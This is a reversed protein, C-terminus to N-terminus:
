VASPEISQAGLRGILANQQQQIQHQLQKLRQEVLMAADQNRALQNRVTPAQLLQQLVQLRLAYNQNPRVDEGIGVMIRGLVAKEEDVEQMSAAQAPRLLREALSPDIIEAAIQTLESRDIRGVLDYDLLARLMELRVKKYELDHLTPDWGFVVDFEVQLDDRNITLPLGQNTGLVRGVIREPAYKRAMRVMIEVVKRWGVLWRSVVAQRYSAVEVSNSGDRRLRGALAMFESLLEEVLKESGVDFQPARFFGYLDPQATEIAVGPGFAHPRQGPPHYWPPLIALDSRDCQLDRMRKIQAQLSWLIEPIGRSREPVRSRSEYTWLVFSPVSEPDNYEEDLAAGADLKAPAFVTIRTVPIGEREIRQVATVVEYQPLHEDQLWELLPAEEADREVFSESVMARNTQTVEDVWKPNYGRARATIRLGSETYTERLFIVDAGEVDECGPPLFVDQGFALARFAPRDRTIIPVPIEASNTEALSRAVKRWRPLDLESQPYLLKLLRVVTDEQAPDRLVQNFWDVLGVVQVVEVPLDLEAVSQLAKLGTEVQDVTITQSSMRTRRDWYVMAVAVGDELLLDALYSAEQWFMHQDSFLLWRALATLREALQTDNAEVPMARLFAPNLANVLLSADERIVRDILPLRLDTAGEWPFPGQGKALSYHKRGDDTQGQWRCLRASLSRRRRDYFDRYGSSLYTIYRESLTSIHDSDM